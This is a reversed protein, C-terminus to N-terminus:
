FIDDGLDNRKLLRELIDGSEYDTERM